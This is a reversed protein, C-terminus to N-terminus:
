MATEQPVGPMHELTPRFIGAAGDSTTAVNFTDAIITVSCEPLISQIRNATSLGIIGAGIVAIKAMIIM